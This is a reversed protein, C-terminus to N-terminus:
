ISAKLPNTHSRLERIGCRSATAKPDTNPCIMYRCEALYRCFNIMRKVRTGMKRRALSSKTCIFLFKRPSGSTVGLFSRCSFQSATTIELSELLSITNEFASLSAFVCPPCFHRFISLHVQRYMQHIRAICM